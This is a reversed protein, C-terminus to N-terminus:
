IVLDKHLIRRLSRHISISPAELVSEAVAAINESQNISSSVTEKEKKVLYRVYPASPAEKRGFSPRLKRVCEEIELVSLLSRFFLLRFHYWLPNLGLM